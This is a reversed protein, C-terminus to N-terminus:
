RNGTEKKIEFQSKLNLFKVEFSHYILYSVVLSIILSVTNILLTPGLGVFIKSNLVLQKIPWHIVYIGYSYKGFEILLKNDLTKRIYSGTKNNILSLFLLTAFFLDISFYGLKSMWLTTHAFSGEQIGILLFTIASVALTLYIFVSKIKINNALLISLIAGLILSDMRYPLLSYNVAINNSTLKLILSLAVFLSLLSLLHRINKKFAFILIPYIIYFQEEVALSWFHNLTTPKEINTALFFNQLYTWFYLQNSSLVEFGNIYKHFLEGGVIFVMFLTLFYIPFIRLCRRIIFIKYSHFTSEYRLLINTILFGSLVFFLDVGVWGLTISYFHILLVLIIAVGRLGDLHSYYKQTIYNAM